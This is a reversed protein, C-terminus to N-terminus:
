FGLPKHNSKKEERQSAHKQFALEKSRTVLSRVVIQVTSIMVLQGDTGEAVFVVRPWNTNRITNPNKTTKTVRQISQSVYKSLLRATRGWRTLICHVM